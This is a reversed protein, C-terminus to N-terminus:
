ACLTALVDSEVYLYVERDHVLFHYRALVKIIVKDGGSVYPTSLPMFIKGRM